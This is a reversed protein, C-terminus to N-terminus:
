EEDELKYKKYLEEVLSDAIVPPLKEFSSEILDSLDYEKERYYLIDELLRSYKQMAEDTVDTGLRKMFNIKGDENKAYIREEIDESIKFQTGGSNEEFIIEIGAYSKKVYIDM